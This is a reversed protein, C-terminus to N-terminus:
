FISTGNLGLNCAITVRPVNARNVDPNPYVNTISPERWCNGTKPAVFPLRELAKVVDLATDWADTYDKADDGAWVDISFDHEWVTAAMPTCGLQCVRVCPPAIREPMNAYTTLGTLEALDQALSWEGDRPRTLSQM